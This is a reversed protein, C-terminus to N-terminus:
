RIIKKQDCNQKNETVKRKTVIENDESEGKKDLDQKENTLIKRKGNKYM